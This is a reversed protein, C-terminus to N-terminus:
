MRARRPKADNLKMGVPVPVESMGNPATQLVIRVTQQRGGSRGSSVRGQRRSGGGRRVSRRSGRNGSSSRRRSSSRYAM